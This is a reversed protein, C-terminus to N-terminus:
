KENMTTIIYISEFIVKRDRKQNILFIIKQRLVKLCKEFKCNVFALYNM